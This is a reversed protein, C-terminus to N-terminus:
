LIPFFLRTDTFLGNMEARFALKNAIINPFFVTSMQPVSVQLTTSHITSYRIKYQHFGDFKALVEHLWRVKSAGDLPRTPYDHYPIYTKSAHFHHQPTGRPFVSLWSIGLYMPLDLTEELTANIDQSPCKM